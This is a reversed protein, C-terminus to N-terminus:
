PLRVRLPPDHLPSCLCPLLPMSHCPNRGASASVTAPRFSYTTLATNPYCGVWGPPATLRPCGSLCSDRVTPYGLYLFSFTIQCAGSPYDVEDRNDPCARSGSVVVLCETPHLTAQFLVQYKWFTEVAGIALSHTEWQPRLGRCRSTALHM